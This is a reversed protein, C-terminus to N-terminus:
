LGDRVRACIGCGRARWRWGANSSAPLLRPFFLPLMGVTRLWCWTKLKGLCSKGWSGIRDLHVDGRNAESPSSRSGTKQRDDQTVSWRTTMRLPASPDRLLGLACDFSGYGGTEGGAQCPMEM